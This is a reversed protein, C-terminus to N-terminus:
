DENVDDMKLMRYGIGPHTQILQKGMPTELKKRLM